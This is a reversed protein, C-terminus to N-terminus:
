SLHHNETKLVGNVWIREYFGNENRECKVEDGVKVWNKKDFIFVTDEENCCGKGMHTFEEIKVCINTEINM